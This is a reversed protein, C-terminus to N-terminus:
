KNMREDQRIQGGKGEAAMNRGSAEMGENGLAKGTQQKINGGAQKMAGGAKNLSPDDKVEDKKQEAERREKELQNSGRANDTLKEGEEKMRENGTINGVTEKVAGAARNYLNSM